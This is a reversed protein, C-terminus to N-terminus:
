RENAEERDFKFGNMNYNYQDFFNDLEENKFMRSRSQRKGSEYVKLVVRVPRSFLKQYKKPIIIMGNRTKAPFEVTKM